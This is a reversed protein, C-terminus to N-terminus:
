CGSLSEPTEYAEYRTFRLCLLQLQPNDLTDVCVLVACRTRVGTLLLRIIMGLAALKPFVECFGAGRM